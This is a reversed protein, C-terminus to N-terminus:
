AWSKAAMASSSKMLSIPGPRTPSGCVPDDGHFQLGQRLLPVQGLPIAANDPSCVIDTEDKLPELGTPPTTIRASQASM